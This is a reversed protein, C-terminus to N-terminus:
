GWCLDGAVNVFVCCAKMADAYMGQRVDYVPNM